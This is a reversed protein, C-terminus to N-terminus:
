KSKKKGMLEKIERQNEDVAVQLDEVQKLLLGIGLEAKADVKHDIEAALRDKSAQRNQSM